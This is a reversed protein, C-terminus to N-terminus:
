GIKAARCIADRHNHIKLLGSYKAAKSRTTETEAGRQIFEDGYEKPFMARMNEARGKAAFHFYVM